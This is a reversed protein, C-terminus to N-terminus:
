HFIGLIKIKLFINLEVIKKKSLNIKFHDMKAFSFVKDIDFYIFFIALWDTFVFLKAMSDYTSFLSPLYFGWAIILM